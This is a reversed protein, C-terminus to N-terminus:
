LGKGFLDHLALLRNRTAERFITYEMDFSIAMLGKEEDFWTLIGREEPHKLVGKFESDERFGYAMLFARFEEKDKIVKAM